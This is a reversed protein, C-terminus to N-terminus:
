NIINLIEKLNIDKEIIEKHKNIYNILNNDDEKSSNNALSKDIYYNLLNKDYCEGNVQKIFTYKFENLYYLHEYDVECINGGENDSFNSMIYSELEEVSTNIYYKTGIDISKIGNLHYDFKQIFYMNKIEIM